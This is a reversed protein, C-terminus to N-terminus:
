GNTEEQELNPNEVVSVKDTTESEVVAQKVDASLYSIFSSIIEKHEEKSSVEIYRPVMLFNIEFENSIFTSLNFLQQQFSESRQIEELTRGLQIREEEDGEGESTVFGLFSIPVFFAKKDSDSM